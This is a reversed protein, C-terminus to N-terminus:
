RPTGRAAAPARLRTPRIRLQQPELLPMIVIVIVIFSLILFILPLM